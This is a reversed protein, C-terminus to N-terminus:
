KDGVFKMIKTEEKYFLKVYLCYIKAFLLVNTEYFRFSYSALPRVLYTKPKKNTYFKYVKENM